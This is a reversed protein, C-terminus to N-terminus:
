GGPVGSGAGPEDDPGGRSESSEHEGDRRSVSDLRRKIEALNDDAERVSRQVLNDLFGFFTHTMERPPGLPDTRFSRKAPKKRDTM